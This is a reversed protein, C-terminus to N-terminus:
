GTLEAVKENTEKGQREAQERREHAAQAERLELELSRAQEESEHAERQETAVKMKSEEVMQKLDLSESNTNKMIEANNQKM